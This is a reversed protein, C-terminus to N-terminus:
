KRIFDADVLADLASLKRSIARGVREEVSGAAIIIKQVATTGGVRRIRGLAQVFSSASWGPSILSVRQRQHLKDHLSLAVSCADAMGVMVHVDNRQFADIGDQRVSEKQGGYISSYAVKKSRLYEEVRERAATFNLCVFISYGDSELTEALEAVALAKSFEAQQRLRLMKVMDDESMQKYNEPMEAYARVLEDHDRKALDVLTVEKVEEPFGPIEDPGIAAFRNGMDRRIGSMVEAAKAKNKTFQFVRKASRGWGIDVYGCGHARLWDYWSSDVFRSWGFWWSLARFKEPTEGLTASLALLKNDPHSKNGFRAIARTAESKPGSVRHIEDWILLAGEPVNTWGTDRSYWKGPRPKTIQEPNTIDLILEPPVKMAEATERWQTRAVKPCVIITKLGLDKVTQLAMVTKGAGTHASCVMVRGTRLAANQQEVIPMQWDYPKITADDVHGERKNTSCKMTGHTQYQVM